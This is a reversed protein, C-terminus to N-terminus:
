NPWRSAWCACSRCPKFSATQTQSGPLWSRRGTGATCAHSQGRKCCGDAARGPTGAASVKYGWLLVGLMIGVGGIALLWTPVPASSSVASDQWIQYIGALAGVSNAVENSGHAAPVVIPAPPPIEAATAAAM